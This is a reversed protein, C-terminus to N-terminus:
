LKTGEDPAGRTGQLLLKEYWHGAINQGHECEVERFIEKSSLLAKISGNGTNMRFQEYIKLSFPWTHTFTFCKLHCTAGCPKTRQCCNRSMLLM